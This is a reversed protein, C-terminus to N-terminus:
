PQEKTKMTLYTGNSIGLLLLLNTSFVPMSIVTTVECVFVVGLILTWAVAQVRHVGIGNGDSCIDRLFGEIRQLHARAATRLMSDNISQLKAAHEATDQLQANANAAARLVHQQQTNLDAMANTMSTTGAIPALWGTLASIGLLILVENPILEMTGIVFWVGSFCLAVVLGWFAMQSKALSYSGGPADRLLTPSRICLGYGLVFVILLVWFTWAVVSRDEVRFQINQSPGLAAAPRTGIAIAIAVNMEKLHLASQCCSENDRLFTSWSERNHEEDDNSQDSDRQLRFSLLMQTPDDGQASVMPLNQMPVDNLLLVIGSSQSAAGPQAGSAALQAVVDSKCAGGVLLTLWEGLRMPVDQHQQHVSIQAPLCINSPPGDSEAVPLDTALAASPPATAAPQPDDQAAATTTATATVALLLLATLITAYRM